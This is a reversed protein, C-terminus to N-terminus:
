QDRQKGGNCNMYDQFLIYGTPGRSVRLIRSNPHPLFADPHSFAPNGRRGDTDVTVMTGARYAPDEEPPLGALPRWLGFTAQAPGRQINIDCRNRCDVYTGVSYSQYCVLGTLAPDEHNVEGLRELSFVPNLWFAGMAEEGKPMLDRCRSKQINGAGPQHDFTLRPERPLRIFAQGGPVPHDRKGAKIYPRAKQRQKVFIRKGWPHVSGGAEAM